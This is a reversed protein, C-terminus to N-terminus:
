TWVIEPDWADDLRRLLLTSFFVRWCGVELNLIRPTNPRRRGEWCNKVIQHKLVALLRSYFTALFLKM